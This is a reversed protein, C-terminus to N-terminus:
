KAPPMEVIASFDGCRQAKGRHGVLAPLTRSILADTSRAVSPNPRHGDLDGPGPQAILRLAPETLPIRLSKTGSSFAHSPDSDNGHRSPQHDIQPTIHFKPNHRFTSPHLSRNVLLHLDSQAPGLLKEITPLARHGGPTYVRNQLHPQKWWAPKACLAYPARNM